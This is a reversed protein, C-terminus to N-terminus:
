EGGGRMQRVEAIRELVNSRLATLEGVSRRGATLILDETERLLDELMADGRESVQALSLGVKYKIRLTDLVLGPTGTARERLRQGVMDLTSAVADWPRVGARALLVRVGFLAALSELTEGHLPGLAEDLGRFAHHMDEEVGRFDDEAWQEMPKGGRLGAALGTAVIERQTVLVAPHTKGLTQEQHWKVLQLRSQATALAEQDDTEAAQNRQAVADDFDYFREDHSNNNNAATSPRFGYAQEHHHEAEREEPIQPLPKMSNSPTLLGHRRSPNSPSNAKQKGKEADPSQYSSSQSAIPNTAAEIDDRSDDPQIDYFKHVATAEQLCQTLKLPELKKLQEEMKTAKELRMMNNVGRILSKMKSSETRLRPNSSMWLNDCWMKMTYVSREEYMDKAEECVGYRTNTLLRFNMDIARLKDQLENIKFPIAQIKYIETFEYLYRTVASESRVDIPTMNPPTDPADLFILGTPDVHNESKRFLVLFDKVVWTGLGHAIFIASRSARDHERDRNAEEVRRQFLPSSADECTTEFKRSLEMTADSLGHKGNHLVHDGDFAFTRVNVRNRIPDTALKVWNELLSRFKYLRKQDDSHSKFGHVLIIEHTVTNVTRSRVLTDLATPMASGM